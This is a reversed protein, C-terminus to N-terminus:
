DVASTQKCGAFHRAHASSQAKSSNARHAGAGNVRYRAKDGTWERSSESMEEPVDVMREGRPQFGTRRKSRFSSPIRATITPAPIPPNIAAKASRCDPTKAETSM